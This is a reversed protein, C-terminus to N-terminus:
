FGVGYSIGGGIERDHFIDDMFVFPRMKVGMTYGVKLNVIPDRLHSVSTRVGVGQRTDYSLSAGIGDEIFGMGLTLPGRMVGGEVDVKPSTEIDRVGLSLFQHADDKEKPRYWLTLAAESDMGETSGYMGVSVTGDLRSVFGVTRESAVRIDYLTKTSEEIFGSTKEILERISANLDKLNQDLRASLNKLESQVTNGIGDIQSETTKGVGEITSSTTRLLKQLEEMTANLNKVAKEVEGFIDTISSASVSSAGVPQVSQMAQMERILIQTESSIVRTHDLMKQIEGPMPVMQGQALCITSLAFAVLILVSRMIRNPLSVWSKLRSLFQGGGIIQSGRPIEGGLPHTEGRPIAGNPTFNVEVIHTSSTMSLVNTRVTPSKMTRFSLAQSQHTCGLTDQSRERLGIPKEAGPQTQDVSIM